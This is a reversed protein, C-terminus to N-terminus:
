WNIPEKLKSNVASFIKSGFFGRYASLPSPHPAAVFEKFHPSLEQASKGLLLGIAGQKALYFIVKETFSQWGLQKHGDAKGIPVTLSRNILFIGQSQWDGLDGNVRVIGLDDHLEKFLNQLSKPLNSSRDVSFALGNADGLIPYPDQGVLVVKVTEPASEFVRFVQEISPAYSDSNKLNDLISVAEAFEKPFLALWAPHVKSLALTSVAM